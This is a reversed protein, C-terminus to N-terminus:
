FIRKFFSTLASIPDRREAQRRREEEEETRKQLAMAWREFTDESIHSTMIPDEMHFTALYTMTEDSIAVDGERCIREFRARTMPASM